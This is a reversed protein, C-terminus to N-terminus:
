DRAKWELVGTDCIPMEDFGHFLRLTGTARGGRRLRGEVQATYSERYELIEKETRFRKRKVDIGRIGFNQELVYGSSCEWTLADAHFDKVRLEGHRRQLVFEVKGPAKVVEGEYFREGAQAPLAASTVAALTAVALFTFTAVGRPRRIPNADTMEGKRTSPDPRRM